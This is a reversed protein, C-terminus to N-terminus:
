NQFELLFLFLINITEVKHFQDLFMNTRQYYNLPEVPTLEVWGFKYDPGSNGLDEATNLVSAKILASEPNAGGNLDRYGEYLQGVTGAVGPCSMSTGSITFYINEPGTSTVSTGVACIDPKIRGDTAPGRSSSAALVDVKSLNGVTLLNKGMKHGGTINGWTAGAGYNNPNCASTGNNGASFVHILSPRERSQQDLQRALSTYGSNCGNSYSKSTIVVGDNDYLSPVSNYNNNSSGYVLLDAGHAMGRNAPNLNGAGMITGSVHDGHTNAASTSCGTCNSQDIRGTYDIHPGIVGDDQMMITVGDGNYTLGGNFETWLTNSRHDTRAGGNEPQGEEQVVEFYYFSSLAYLSNLDDLKIRVNITNLVESTSAITGGVKIIQEQAIGSPIGEYFSGVIEIQDEGFLTWHPYQKLSLLKSKKYDPLVSLVTAAELVEWNVDTSIVAFFSNTPLYNKLVIGNVALTQKTEENPINDFSIIRYFENNVLEGSTWELNSAEAVRFNGSKLLLTNEQAHANCIVICLAFLM